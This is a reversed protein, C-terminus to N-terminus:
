SNRCREMELGRGEESTPPSASLGLGGILQDDPSWGDQLAQSGDGSGRMLMFRLACGFPAKHSVLAAGTVWVNSPAQSRQALLWPCLGLTNDTHWGPVNRVNGPPVHQSSLPASYMSQSTHPGGQRRLGKRSYM